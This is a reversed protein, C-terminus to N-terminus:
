PAGEVEMPAGSLLVAIWRLDESHELLIRLVVTMPVALIMGLPGWVWGWFILSLFVVLPSLHLRRGMVQPELLNGLLVNVSLFVLAVLLAGTFGRQVLALLVAPIAAIISGLNPIYNLMFALLGWLLPFDLGLLAMSAGILVGTVISILTKTVLYRQVETRIRSFRRLGEPSSGLALQLKVPFGAAELLIFVMIFIVVIANSLVAVAGRLATGLMDVVIGPSVVVLAEWEATPMGWAALQALFQSYLEELRIRYRPAAEVFGTVSGTVVMGLVVLLALNAFVAIAVAIGRPVRFRVLFAILPLSLIALFLAVMLPILITSAARLGAVVVVFSALTLLIPPRWPEPM